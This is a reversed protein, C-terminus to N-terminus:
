SAQEGSVPAGAAPAGARARKLTRPRAAEPVWDYVVVTRCAVDQVSRNRRDVVALLLGPYFAACFMARLLAQLPRVPTADTRVVRLGLLQKGVSRGTSGWGVALYIVLVWYIGLGNIWGPPNPVALRNSFLIDWLLSVGAVILLYLVFAIGIDAAFALGRSAVGARQGQLQQARANRIPRSM